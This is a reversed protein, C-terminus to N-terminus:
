LFLTRPAILSSIHKDPIPQLVLFYLIINAQLPHHLFGKTKPHQATVPAPNSFLSAAASRM